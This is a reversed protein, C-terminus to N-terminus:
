YEEIVLSVFVRVYFNCLFHTYQLYGHSGYLCWKTPSPTCFCCLKTKYIFKVALVVIDTFCSPPFLQLQASILDRVHSLSYVAYM